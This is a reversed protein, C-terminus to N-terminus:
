RTVTTTRIILLAALIISTAHSVGTALLIIQARLVMASAATTVKKNAQPLVTRIATLVMFPISRSSLHVRTAAAGNIAPIVTEPRAMAKPVATAVWQAMTLPHAMVELLGRAKGLVERAAKPAM